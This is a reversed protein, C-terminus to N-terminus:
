NTYAQFQEYVKGTFINQGKSIKKTFLSKVLSQIGKITISRLKKNRRSTTRDVIKGLNHGNSLKM